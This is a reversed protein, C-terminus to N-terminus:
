SSFVISNVAVVCGFNWFGSLSRYFVMYIVLLSLSDAVFAQLTTVVRLILMSTSDM